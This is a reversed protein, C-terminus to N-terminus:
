FGNECNIAKYLIRIADKRLYDDGDIYEGCAVELGVNRAIGPGKYSQHIVLMLCLLRINMVCPQHVTKLAM